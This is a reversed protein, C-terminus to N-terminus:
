ILRDDRKICDSVGGCGGVVYHCGSQKTDNQPPPPPPESCIRCLHRRYGGPFLIGHIFDIIPRHLLAASAAAASSCCLVSERVSSNSRSCMPGTWLSVRTWARTLATRLSSCQLLAIRNCCCSSSATLAAASARKSFCSAWVSSAEGAKAGVWARTSM